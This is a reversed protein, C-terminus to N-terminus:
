FAGSQDLTVGSGLEGQVVEARGTEDRILVEANSTNRTEEISRAIRSSPSATVAGASVFGQSENVAGRSFAEIFSSVGPLREFRDWVESILSGLPRLAVILASVGAAILVFPNAASLANILVMAGTVLNLAVVLGTIAVGLKTITSINDNVYTFFETMQDLLQGFKAVLDFENSLKAFRDALMTIRETLMQVFDVIRTKILERNAAVWDTFRRILPTLADGLLGSVEAGLSSLFRTLFGLEFTFAKAGERSAKTRVNLREYKATIEDISSGQRRLVGIIRNAEGGMLIDVASSAQQADALKLAANTIREFQKEPALRRLNEFELGLIHAAELVPTTAELGASEGLKNNMEEILDVVHELEFGAPAIAAGLAELKDVNFGVSEALQEARVSAKNLLVVGAGIATGAGVSFTALKKLAQGIGSVVSNVAKNVRRMGRTISRTLKGVRNQMRTVPATIRDVAKFVTEISFRNAM